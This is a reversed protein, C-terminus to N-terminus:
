ELVELTNQRLENIKLGMKSLMIIGVGDDDGLLGLLLHESGIYEHNRNKAEVIAQEVVQRARPSLSFDSDKNKYSGNGIIKVMEERMKSIDLVKLVGSIKDSSQMALGLLIQGTGIYEHGLKEKEAKALEMVENAQDDFQEFNM